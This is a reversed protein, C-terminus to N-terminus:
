PTGGPPSMFLGNFVWATLATCAAGLFVSGTAFFWIAAAIALAVIILRVPLPWDPNLM